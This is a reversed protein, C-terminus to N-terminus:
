YLKVSLMQKSIYDGCNISLFLMYFICYQEKFISKNGGKQHM